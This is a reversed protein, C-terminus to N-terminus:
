RSCCSCALSALLWDPRLLEESLRQLMRVPVRALPVRGGAGAETQVWVGTAAKTAGRGAETGPRARDAETVWRLGVVGAGGAGTVGMGAGRSMGTVVAVVLVVAREATEGRLM